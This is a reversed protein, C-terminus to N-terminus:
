GYVLVREKMLNKKFEGDMRKTSIVDIDNGIADRLDLRFETMEFLSKIKGAEVYFDYDSDENYDGRAVSGFLYIKNVGYKRAVPEVIVKLEEVSLRKRTKPSM